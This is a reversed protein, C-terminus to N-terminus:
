CMGTAVLGSSFSSELDNELEPIEKIGRYEKWAHKGDPNAFIREAPQNRGIGCTEPDPGQAARASFSFSRLESDASVGM